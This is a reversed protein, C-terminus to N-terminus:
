TSPRASAKNPNRSRKIRERGGGSGAAYSKVWGWIDIMWFSFLFHFDNQQFAHGLETLHAFDHLNAVTKGAIEQELAALCQAGGGLVAGPIVAHFGVELGVVDLGLAFRALDGLLDVALFDHDDALGRFTALQEAR